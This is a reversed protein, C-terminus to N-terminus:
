LILTRESAQSLDFGEDGRIYHMQQFQAETVILSQIVGDEPAILAIHKELIAASKRNPCVRVYISFQMMVFGENIIAKRFQRYSRRHATTDVPLDFMIMLRM